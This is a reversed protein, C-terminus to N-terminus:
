GSGAECTAPVQWQRRTLTNADHKLAPQALQIQLHANPPRMRTENENKNAAPPTHCIGASNGTHLLQSLPFETLGAFTRKARSRVRPSLALGRNSKFPLHSLKKLRKRGKKKNTEAIHNKNKRLSSSPLKFARCSCAFLAVDVHNTRTGGNSIFLLSGM